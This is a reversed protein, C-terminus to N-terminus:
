DRVTTGLPRRWRAYYTGLAQVTVSDMVASESSANPGQSTALVRMGWEPATQRYARHQQELHDRAEEPKRTLADDITVDLWYALQPRPTLARALRAPWSGAVQARDTLVVLEVLADFLYRDGIVVQRRLLPWSVQAWYRVVLDVLTLGIWGARVLPNRLWTRKRNVRAQRADDDTSVVSGAASQRGLLRKASSIIADTFPSSAGRSWMVRVQIDCTGFAKRLGEALTTKGCGDVGSFTILMPRQMRFPLRREIGAWSHLAMDRAKQSPQLARDRLVKRYYHRKSFGFSVGLPLGPPSGAAVTALREQLYARCWDPAEDRAAQVIERPFSHEGYLSSELASWLWICTDLGERWGRRAAQAYVLEWDLSARAGDPSRLLYMVKWLDGLKVEKDEYFAHAMTILLADEPSPITVMADDPTPRARELLQADDMFGTGWGVFEHLHIASVSAGRHFKRFLYKHPEEVNRLEVYGLDLLAQRASPASEVSLMVDLNDSRYPLSPPIGVSKIMVDRVSAGDFAQRVAQYQRRQSAWSEREKEVAMRFGASAYFSGLADPITALSLLPIKNAGLVRLLPLAYDPEGSEPLWGPADGIIDRHPRVMKAIAWALEQTTARRREPM